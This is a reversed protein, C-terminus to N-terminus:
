RYQGRPRWHATWRFALVTRKFRHSNGGAASTDSPVAVLNFAGKPGEDEGSTVKLRTEITFGSARDFGNSRWLTTDILPYFSASFDSFVNYGGTEAVAMSMVGNQVSNTGWLQYDGFDGELNGDLNIESLLAATNGEFEYLWEFESSDKEQTIPSELATAPVSVGLVLLGVLATMMFNHRKNM